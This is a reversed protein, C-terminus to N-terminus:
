PPLYTRQIELSGIRCHDNNIKTQERKLIELSGIRCHDLGGDGEQYQPIELSGIRCHDVVSVALANLNM